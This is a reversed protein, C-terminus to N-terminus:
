LPSDFRSNVRGIGGYREGMTSGRSNCFRNGAVITTYLTVVDAAAHCM